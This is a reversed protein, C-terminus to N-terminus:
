ALHFYFNSILMILNFPSPKFRPIFEFVAWLSVSIQIVMLLNFPSPKFVPVLEFVM